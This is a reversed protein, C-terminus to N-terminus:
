PSSSPKVANRRWKWGVNASSVKSARVQPDLLGNYLPMSMVGLVTAANPNLTGQVGFSPLKQGAIVDVGERASASMM